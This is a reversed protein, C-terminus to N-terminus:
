LHIYKLKRDSAAEIIENMLRQFEPHFCMCEYKILYDLYPQSGTDTTSESEQPLLRYKRAKDHKGKQYNLSYRIERNKGGMGRTEADKKQRAAKQDKTYKNKIKAIKERQNKRYQELEEETMSNLRSQHCLNKNFLRRRRSERSERHRALRDNYLKDTRETESERSRKDAM